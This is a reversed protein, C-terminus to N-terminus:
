DETSPNIQGVPAVYSAPVNVLGSDADPSIYIGGTFTIELIIKNPIDGYAKNDNVTFNGTKIQIPNGIIDHQNIGFRDIYYGTQGDHTYKALACIFARFDTDTLEMTTNVFAVTFNLSFIGKRVRTRIIPTERVHNFAPDPDEDEGLVEPLYWDRFYRIIEEHREFPRDMKGSNPVSLIEIMRAGSLAQPLYTFPIGLTTAIGALYDRCIIFM